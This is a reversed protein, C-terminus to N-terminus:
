AGPSPPRILLTLNSRWPPVHFRGAIRAHPSAQEVLRCLDAESEYHVRDGTIFRDSLYGMAYPLTPLRVWEKLVLSGSATMTRVANELLSRRQNRPVHHLVDALVVLDYSQPASAAVSELERREFRVRTRDGQFLRGPSESIDIATVRATPYTAALRETVAGDGCGIELISAASPVHRAISAALADLDVFLSRYAGAVVREHRGFSRRLRPGIGM